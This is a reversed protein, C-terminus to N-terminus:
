NNKVKLCIEVCDKFFKIPETEEISNTFELFDNTTFTKGYYWNEKSKKYSSPDIFNYSELSEIISQIDNYKSEVKAIGIFFKNEDDNNFQITARIKKNEEIEFLLYVELYKPINYIGYKELGQLEKGSIEIKYLNGIEKVESIILKTLRIGIEKKNNAIKIANKINSGNKFITDFIEKEMIKNISQNTLKKILNYYHKLPYYIMPRNDVFFFCAELWEKIFNKYSIPTYLCKKELEITNFQKQDLPFTIEFSDFKITNKDDLSIITPINYVNNENILISGDNNSLHKGDLTLYLMVIKKNGKTKAYNYYRALQYKQDSAYIKNEILLIQKDDEIVIDISGGSINTNDVEGAYREVIRENVLTGFDNLKLDYLQNQDFLNNLQEVFKKLFFDGCGHKGKPNLLNGIIRSHTFEEDTEMSMVSFINYNEGTYNAETEHKKIIETVSDLLSQIQQINESMIKM